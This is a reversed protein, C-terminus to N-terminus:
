QIVIYSDVHSSVRFYGLAGGEINSTPNDPTTQGFGGGGQSLADQTRIYEYASKDISELRLSVTDGLQAIESIDTDIISILIEEGDEIIDAYYSEGWDGTRNLTYIVRYFNEENPPDQVVLNLTPFDQGFFTVLDLFTTDIPIPMPMQVKATYLNGADDISLDYTRGPVGQLSSTEYTGPSTETLLEDTGNNDNIRVTAGTVDPFVNSQDYNISRTMKISYPGADDTLEGIIVIKPDSSNLDLEIVKECSTFGLILLLSLIIKTSTQM